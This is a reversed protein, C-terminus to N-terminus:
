FKYNLGLKVVDAALETKVTAAGMQQSTSNFDLHLYGLDAVWNESFAYAVGAGATWGPETYSDSWLGSCDSSAVNFHGIAVGATGYVLIQNMPIVGVRARVTSFWKLDASVSFNKSFDTYQTKYGAGSFDWIGGVLLSGVQKDYGIEGGLFWSEDRLNFDTYDSITVGPITSTTGEIVNTVTSTNFSEDVSITTNTVDPTVSITAPAYQNKYYGGKNELKGYGGTVGAYFGDWSFPEPAAGMSGALAIEPFVALVTLLSSSILSLNM